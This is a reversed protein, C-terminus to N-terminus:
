IAEPDPIKETVEVKEVTIKTKQKELSIEQFFLVWAVQMFTAYASSFILLIAIGFIIGIILIVIVGIKAFILYALLGLLVFLLTVIIISIFIPIIIVMGIAITIIGMLLSEKINKRFLGYAYELAMRIKMNGIVIYFFAYKRIFCALVALPIIILIAGVLSITGLVHAKLIFLYAVPMFMMFIILLVALFTIIEVLVLPWFYKKTELFIGKITSQGYVVINSAAKILGANGIIRLFFFFIMLLFVAMAIGLVIEPNNQIFIIAKGAQEKNESSVKSMNWNANSIGSGSGLSLLLGFVWLFKNKWAIKLAQKIIEFYPIPKM